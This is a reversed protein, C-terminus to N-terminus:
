SFAAYQAPMLSSSDLRMAFRIMSSTNEFESLSACTACTDDQAKVLQLKTGAPAQSRYMGKMDRM